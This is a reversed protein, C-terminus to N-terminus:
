VRVGAYKRRLILPIQEIYKQTTIEGFSPASCSEIVIWEPNTRTRKNSDLTSQVKVDFAGIDLGVANLATVCDSVINNWNAPKEFQPNEEVIWVCNDDHRQWSNKEDADRKLMKRCTYFYGESTVHIRYEKSYTYFREFIYNSLTKGRLWNTLEAQNNLKYNGTGRSGYIHKAIIPYPLEIINISEGDAKTFKNNSCTFWEPTRVGARSFCRKMLLKSASNKVAQVTNCEIRRGGLAVVDDEVTTSGLRVVSRFPLLPLSTRLPSHSPHRSRIKPRFMSIRKTTTAAAKKVAAKKVVTRRTLTRM